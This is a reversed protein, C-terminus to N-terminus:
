YDECNGAKTDGQQTNFDIIEDVGKGFDFDAGAGGKLDDDVVAMSSIMVEKELYSIMERVVRSLIEQNEVMCNTTEEIGTSKIKVEKRILPTM